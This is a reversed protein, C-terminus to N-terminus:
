LFIRTPFFRHFPCFSPIQACAYFAYNPVEGLGHLVRHSFLQRTFTEVLFDAFDALKDVYLLFKGWRRRLALLCVVLHSAIHNTQKVTIGVFRHSMAIRNAQIILM